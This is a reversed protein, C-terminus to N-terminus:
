ADLTCRHCLVWLSESLRIFVCKMPIVSCLVFSGAAVGPTTFSPRQRNKLVKHCQHVDQFSETKEHWFQCLTFYFFTQPKNQFNKVSHPDSHSRVWPWVKYHIRLPCINGELSSVINGQCWLWRSLAPSQNTPLYKWFLLGSESAFRLSYKYIHMDVRKKYYTVTEM